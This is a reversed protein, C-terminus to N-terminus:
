RAFARELMRYDGMANWFTFGSCGSDISARAQNILYGTGWTPSLFNFAQIYPRIVVGKGLMSLARRGTTFVLSYSRRERPGRMYFRGFHSPYVMPCIVDVHQAFEEIDQGIWNGFHYWANFGYVDVSIPLGIESRAEALFDVLIESKYIKRDRRFRYRCQHVPGDSPFRIYDFQIEDFGLGAIEKAIEINYRRVFRSHPDVWFEMPNGSWPRNYKGNWIAYRYDFARYLNRDKFVVIRAITYIGREGLRKLLREIDISNRTARIKGATENKSSFYINGSDDKVDIVISNFGSKVIAKELRNFNGKIAPISGYLARRDMVANKVASKKFTKEELRCFLSFEHLRHTILVSVPNISAPPPISSENIRSLAWRGTKKNLEYVGTGTSVFLIDGRQVIDYIDNHHDRLIPLGMDAWSRGGDVSRFVGGGFNLGTYIADPNNEDFSTCSIEEHFFLDRSYPERPLGKSINIFGSGKRRFIGNFATGVFIEPAEGRIGLSTIYNNRSLGRLTIEKWTNGGDRSLYLTHKTALALTDPFEKCVAFASIRRFKGTVGFQSRILFDSANIGRWSGAGSNLKFIGAGRTILYLNDRSDRYIREPTLIEPLGSNLPKWGAAKDEYIFVGRGHTLAYVRNASHASRTYCLLVM